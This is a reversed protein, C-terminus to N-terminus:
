LPFQRQAKAVRAEYASAQSSGLPADYPRQIQIPLGSINIDPYKRHLQDVVSTFGYDTSCHSGTISAGSDVLYHGDGDTYQPAGYYAYMPLPYRAVDGDEHRASVEYSEPARKAAVVLAEVIGVAEAEDIGQRVLEAVANSAAGRIRVGSLVFDDVVFIKVSKDGKSAVKAATVSDVRSMHIEDYLDTNVESIITSLREALLLAIHRESRDNAYYIYSERGATVAELIHGAMNDIATDLENSGIYVLNARFADVLEVTARDDAAIAREYVQHLWTDLSHIGERETFEQGTYRDTILADRPLSDAAIQDFKPGETAYRLGEQQPGAAEGNAAIDM